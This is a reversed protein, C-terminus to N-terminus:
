ALATPFRQQLVYFDEWTASDEPLHSWKVRVQPMATNGKKVLRRELIAEPQLDATDLTIIRSIDSYVPSYDETFPKLQSVHFVNHVRSDAPLELRYVAAGVRDLVRYPGFYKFALKPFPRNVVSSQAYPQLKLFVLDGGQYQRDSRNGDAYLKM